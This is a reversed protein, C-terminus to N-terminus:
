CRHTTKKKDRKKADDGSGCRRGIERL